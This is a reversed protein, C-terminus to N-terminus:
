LIRKKIIQCGVDIQKIDKYSRLFSNVIKNEEEQWGHDKYIDVYARLTNIAIIYEYDDSDGYNSYEKILGILRIIKERGFPRLVKNSMGKELSHVLLLIDYGITEKSKHSYIYNRTFYKYDLNYEKYFRLKKIYFVIKRLFKIKKLKEKM